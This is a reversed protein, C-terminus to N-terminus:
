IAVDHYQTKGLHVEDLGLSLQSSAAIGQLGDVLQTCGAGDSALVVADATSYGDLSDQLLASDLEATLVLAPEVQLTGVGQDVVHLLVIGLGTAVNGQLVVVTRDWEGLQLRNGVTAIYSYCLIGVAYQLVACCLFGHPLVRTILGIIVM